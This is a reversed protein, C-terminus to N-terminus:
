VETFQQFGGNFKLCTHGTIGNRHKAIDIVIDSKNEESKNSLLIIKDADQELISGGKLNQVTPSDGPSIDRNFQHLHVIPINLEKALIKLGRSKEKTEDYTSLGPCSILEFYDIFLININYDKVIKRARIKVDFWNNEFTDNIVIRDSRHLKGAVENYNKYDKEKIKEYVLDGIYIRGLNSILRSFIDEKTMELSFYGARKGSETINLLLNLAFATKGVSTMGSLVISEGKKFGNIIRDVNNYSTPIYGFSTDAKREELENTINPIIDKGLYFDQKYGSKLQEISHELSEIDKDLNILNSEKCVVQINEAVKNCERIFSYKKLLEVYYAINASTSIQEFIEMLYAGSIEDRLKESLSVLEVPKNDAHLEIIANFIKQNKESHFDSQKINASIESICDNDLMASGLINVEIENNLM